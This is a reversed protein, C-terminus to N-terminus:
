DKPDPWPKISISTNGDSTWFIGIQHDKSALVKDVFNMLGDVSGTFNVITTSNNVTNVPKKEKEEPIERDWCHACTDDDENCWIPDDLYRFTSPCNICGGYAGPDLKDPYEIVLKERCTM